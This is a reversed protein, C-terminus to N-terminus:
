RVTVKTFYPPVTEGPAFDIRVLQQREAPALTRQFEKPVRAAIPMVNTITGRLWQRVGADVTVSKGVTVSYLRSVPFYALVYRQEGVLEAVLDGPNIVSGVRADVDSIYGDMPAKMRGADYLMGLDDLAQDTFRSAAMVQAVQRSMTDKEALLVALEEKGKFVQEIVANQTLIPILNKNRSQAISTQNADVIREREMASGVLQDIMSAKAGIEAMKAVLTASNDSLTAILQAVRSSSVRAILDGKKVHDGNRVLVDLVTVTYEPSVAGIDGVVLGDAASYAVGGAINNGIWTVLSLLGAFYSYRTFTGRSM